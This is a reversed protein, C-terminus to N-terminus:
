GDLIGLQAALRVLDMANHAHLKRLIRSRHTEVTRRSIGLQTAIGENSGGRVTLDFIERERNTLARLPMDPTGEHRQRRYDDVVASSFNPALYRQGQAVQRIARVVEAPPQTKTAYGLIGAEFAQAVRENDTYMSLALIKTEPRRRM